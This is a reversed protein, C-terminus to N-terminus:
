ILSLNIVDSVYMLPKELYHLQPIMKQLILPIVPYAIDNTITRDDLYSGEKLGYLTKLITKM